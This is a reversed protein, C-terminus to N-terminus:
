INYIVIEAPDFLRFRGLGASVCLKMGNVDFVGKSYKPFFKREPSLLPVGFLRVSGGHIHGSFTYKVGWNAYSEAFLPNHAMLLTKGDPLQGMLEKVDEPSVKDLDKYGGSKKYTTYKPELGCVYIEEENITIKSKENRLLYTGSGTIIHKLEDHFEPPLSQEHNGYIMYVPAIKNLERLTTDLLGFHTEYRSIIDGTLLILDPDEKATTEILWSNKRGFHRKHLDSIQAVKLKGGLDEHRVKLVATNEVVAWIVLVFLIIIVALIVVNM